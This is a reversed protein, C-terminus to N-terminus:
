SSWRTGGFVATHETEVVSVDDRRCETLNTLSLFNAPEHCLSLLSYDHSFYRALPINENGTTDLCSLDSVLSLYKLVGFRAVYSAVEVLRPGITRIDNSISKRGNLTQTRQASNSM